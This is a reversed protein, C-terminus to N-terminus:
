SKASSFQCFFLSIHTKIINESKKNKIKYNSLSSPIFFTKKEKYSNFYQSERFILISTEFHGCGDYKICIFTLTFCTVKNTNYTGSGNM